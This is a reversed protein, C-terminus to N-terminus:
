PRTLELIHISLAQQVPSKLEPLVPPAPPEPSELLELVRAYPVTSVPSELELAERALQVLDSLLLSEITPVM